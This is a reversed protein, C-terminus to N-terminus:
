RIGDATAVLGALDYYSPRCADQRALEKVLETKGVFRRFVNHDAGGQYARGQTDGSEAPPDQSDPSQRYDRYEDDCKRWQDRRKESKM